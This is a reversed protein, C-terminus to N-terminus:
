RKAAKASKADQRQPKRALKEAAKFLALTERAAKASAVTPAFECGIIGDYGAATAAAIVNLYNIEGTGPQHRGPVDATHLYGIADVNARITEILNGEMIQMHYCDYLVKVNPHAIKAHLDWAIRSHSIHYGAHDVLTNLPEMVLTVGAKAAAPGLREMVRLIAGEKKAEPVPKATPVVCRDPGLIDTMTFLTTAGLRQAITLSEEVGDCYQNFDAPNIMTGGTNGQFIGLELDHKALQEEVLDLDKNQWLWFEVADFGAKKAAAFRKAFPLETFLMEICASYRM